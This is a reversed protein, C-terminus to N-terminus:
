FLACPARFSSYGRSEFRYALVETGDACDALRRKGNENVGRWIFAMPMGFGALIQPMQSNHGFIDCVFGASSPTGGWRRAMERGLRLNRVLAEGSVLFEDPLVYWPGVRLQGSAVLERVEEAREPRVEVYDELVIAQGDCTFPGQLEGSALGSCAMSCACLRHRFYQYSIGNRDQHQPCHARRRSM